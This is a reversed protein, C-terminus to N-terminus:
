FSQSQLKNNNNRDHTTKGVKETKRDQERWTTYNNKKLGVHEYIIGAFKMFKVPM